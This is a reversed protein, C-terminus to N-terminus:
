AGAAARLADRVLLTSVFVVIATGLERLADAAGASPAVAAVTVGAREAAATVLAVAGVVEAHDPRLAHGLSASLDTAGILVADMGGVALIAEAEEVGEGDEIQVVVLTDAARELHAGMDATAYRGARTTLALGRRGRPPYHASAVMRAAIAPDTVRPVVVGSAGGDLASQIAAEDAGAVRVLAAIGAADAARLHHELEGGSSPGHETDIIVADFGLHGALEVEAPSPMKVLLMRLPAGGRVREALSPATPTRM